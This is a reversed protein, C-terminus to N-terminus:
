PWSAVAVPDGVGTTFTTAPMVSTGPAFVYAANASDGPIDANDLPDVALSPITSGVSVITRVIAGSSDYEVVTGSGLGIYVDSLSDVAIALPKVTTMSSGFTRHVTTANSFPAIYETVDDGGYNSVYLNGAADFADYYPKNTGANFTFLPTTSTGPAFVSVGISGGNNAVYLNGAADIALGAPTNIGAPSSTSSLTRSPTSGGAPTFEKVDIGGVAETVFIDGSADVALGVDPGSLGTISRSAVTSGPAFVNVSGMTGGVLNAVYLNGSVDVKMTFPNALGASAPITLIPSTSWSAYESITNTTSNAVYLLPSIQLPFQASIPPSANDLPTAEATLQITVSTPHLPTVKFVGPSGAVAVISVDAPDNSILQYTPQGPGGIENQEVDFSQVAILQAAEPGVGAFFFNEASNPDSALPSVSGLSAGLSTPIGDLVLAIPNAKGAAIKVLRDAILSLKAGTGGLNDFTTVDFADIGAPAAVSFTCTFANNVLATCGGFGPLTNATLQAYLQKHTSDYIAITVSGTSGSIYHGHRGKRHRPIKIGFVASTKQHREPALRTAPTGPTPVVGASNTGSCAALLAAVAACAAWSVLRRDIM